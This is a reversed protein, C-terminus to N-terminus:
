VARRFFFEAANDAVGAELGDLPIREVPRHIQISAIM